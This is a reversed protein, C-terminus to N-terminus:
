DYALNLKLTKGLDGVRFRLFYVGDVLGSVSVIENQTGIPKSSLQKSLVKRGWLDFLEYAIEDETNLVEYSIRISQSWPDQSILIPKHSKEPTSTVSSYYITIRIHDISATHFISGHNRPRILVGFDPDNVDNPTWSYGWVDLSDGFAIYTNSQTWYQQTAQNKGTATGALLLMIVSDKLVSDVDSKRQIDLQIGHIFMNTPITFGFDTAFFGRSWYCTSQFCLPPATMTCEAFANDSLQADTANSWVSGLCGLCGPFEYTLSSANNPGQTQASLALSSFFLAIFLILRM